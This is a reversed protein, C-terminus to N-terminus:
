EEEWKLSLKQVNATMKSRMERYRRELRERDKASLAPVAGGIGSGDDSAGGGGLASLLHESKVRPIKGGVAKARAVVRSEDLLKDAKSKWKAADSRLSRTWLEFYAEFSILLDELPM